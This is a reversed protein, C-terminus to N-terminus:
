LISCVLELSREWAAKAREKFGLRWLCCGIGIRPDPDTLSPMRSLVEQYSTLADQIRGLLYQTRARGLIAMLNLGSSSKVADDFHKQAQKLAEDRDSGVSNGIKTSTMLSARLLHLVGRMLHHPPFSPNIKLAENLAITTERLFDDKTKLDTGVEDTQKPLQRPAKRSKLLRLWCICNLLSLKEKPGSRAVSQLGRDLIEIAQDTEGQKAYALAITIWLNKPAKENELLQCLETTDDLLEELNVEVAEETDPGSVPIDIASPIDTFRMNAPLSDHSAAVAGNTLGNTYPAM